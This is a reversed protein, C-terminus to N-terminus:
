HIMQWAKLSEIPYILMIINLLLSDRIWFILVAETIVFVGVSRWLGLRTAWLFGLLCCFIDGLSNAVSDGRYGIAITAERYRHIVFESNELMEWGCELLTATFFRWPLSTKPFALWLLGYLALGHLVHTFSYPDLLHQSCHSTWIDSAWLSWGGCACWWVRGQWREYCVTAMLM